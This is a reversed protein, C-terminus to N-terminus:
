ASLIDSYLQKYQRAIKDWSYKQMEKVNFLGVQERFAADGLLDLMRKSLLKSDGPLVTFGNVGDKVLLPVDGVNTTIVPKGCAMAEMLSLPMGEVYSPLVYVDCANYLFPLDEDPIYNLLATLKKGFNDSADKVNKVLPGSGAIVFKINDTKNVIQSAAELFTLLGKAARLHAFYLFVVDNEKFGLKERFERRKQPDPVFTSIDVGNPIYVLKKGFHQESLYNFQRMSVTTIASSNDLVLKNSLSNLFQATVQVISSSYGSTLGHCTAVMPVKIRVFNKLFGMYLSLSSYVFHVHILDVDLSDKIVGLDKPNYIAYPTDRVILRKSSLRVVNDKRKVASSLGFDSAIVSIKVGDNSLRKVVEHVVKGAYFPYYEVIQLVRM